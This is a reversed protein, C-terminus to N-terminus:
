FGWDPDVIPFALRRSGLKYIQVSAWRSKAFEITRITDLVATAITVGYRSRLKQSEQQLLSWQRQKLAFATAQQRHEEFLPQDDKRLKFRDRYMEFYQQAKQESISVTDCLQRLYEQYVWKDTWRRLENKVEPRKHVRAKYGMQLLFHDRVSRAIQDNLQVQFTYLDDDKQLRIANPKLKTLFDAVSWSGGKFTVLTQTLYQRLETIYPRDDDINALASQLSEGPKKHLYWEYLCKSLPVFVRGKTTVNKLTMLDAIFKTALDDEKRARLIKRFTERRSEYDYDTLAQRRIDVIQFIFYSGNLEVVDSIEGVPLNEIASLLEDSVDLWTIYDTEFDSPKLSVEPNNSLIKEVTAAYGHQRMHACVSEAFERNPEAWYRLKWSVKSKNIADTIEQDSVTAKNQVQDKIVQEIILEDRLSEVQRQVRDSQDLRLEYGRLSLVKEDIMRELYALKRNEGTKLHAFGFEYNLRFDGVTIKQGGVQALVINEGDLPKKKECSGSILSFLFLVLICWRYRKKLKKESTMENGERQTNINKYIYVTKFLKELLYTFGKRVMVMPMIFIPLTIDDLCDFNQTTLRFSGSESCTNGM